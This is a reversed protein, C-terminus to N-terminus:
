TYMMVLGSSCFLSMVTYPGLQSSGEGSPHIPKPTSAAQSQEWKNGSRACGHLLFQDAAGHADLVLLIAAIGQEEVQAKHTIGLGLGAGKLGDDFLQSAVQGCQLDAVCHARTSPCASKPFTNM